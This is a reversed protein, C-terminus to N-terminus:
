TCISTCTYISIYIYVYICIYVYVNGYINGCLLLSCSCLIVLLLFAVNLAIMLFHLLSSVEVNPLNSKHVYLLSLLQGILYIGMQM